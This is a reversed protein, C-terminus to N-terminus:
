VFSSSKKRGFLFSAIMQEGNLSASKTKKFNLFSCAFKFFKPIFLSCAILTAFEPSVLMSPMFHSTAGNERQASPM